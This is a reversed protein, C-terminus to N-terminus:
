YVRDDWISYGSTGASKHSWSISKYKVQVKEFPM